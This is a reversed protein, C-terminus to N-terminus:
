SMPWSCLATFRSTQMELSKKERGLKLYCNYCMNKAYHKQDIHECASVKKIIRQKQAKHKICKLTIKETEKETSEEANSKNSESNFAFSSPM